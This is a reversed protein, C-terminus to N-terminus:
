VHVSWVNVIIMFRKFDTELRVLLITPENEKYIWMVRENYPVIWNKIIKPTQKIFGLNFTIGVM